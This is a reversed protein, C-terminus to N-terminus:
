LCLALMCFISFFFLFFIFFVDYCVWDLSPEKIFVSMVNLIDNKKDQLARMTHVMDNRLHATGNLPDMIHVFQRTLRCPMMEPVPLTLGYGFAAGFDIGVIQGTSQDVM